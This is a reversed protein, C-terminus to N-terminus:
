AAPPKQFLYKGFLRWRPLLTELAGVAKTMRGFDIYNKQFTYRELKLGFSEVLTVVERM